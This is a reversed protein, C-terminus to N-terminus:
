SANASAEVYLSMMISSLHQKDINDGVSVNKVYDTIIDSISTTPTYVTSSTSVTDVNNEILKVDHPKMSYIRDLMADREKPALAVDVLIKVYKDRIIDETIDTTSLKFSSYLRHVNEVLTFTKGNYVFFGKTTNCDQWTLEYPTGTYMVNDKSSMHHYHGSIVKKFKKYGDHSYDTKALQGKFLEFGDFEFHGACYKSKSNAIAANVQDVNEKCVWPVALISTGCINIETPEKIITYYQPYDRLVEEVSSIQLSERYFIDHNGLLVYMHMDRKVLQEHFEQKFFNLSWTNIYKRVDFLDGLQLVFKIGHDDVYSFFDKFFKKMYEHHILSSNATGFHCDGLIAFQKM